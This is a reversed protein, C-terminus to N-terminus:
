HKRTDSNTKEYKVFFKNAAVDKFYEGPVQNKEGCFEEKESVIIEKSPYNSIESVYFQNEFEYLEEDQGLSYAIRNSFELPSNEKSYSVTKIDRRSPFRLLDCNRLVSENISYEMIFKATKAPIILREEEKYSVAKGTSSKLGVARNNSSQNTQFLNYLNFGSIARSSYSSQATAVEANNSYTTERNRYYDHAVNNLIFFSKDLHLYLPEDTKNYFQFGINGGEDWLNYTVRTNEDEYVLLNEKQIIDSSTEAKYVQYYINNSCSSFIGAIIIIVLFQNLNMPPNKLNKTIAAFSCNYPPGVKRTVTFLM